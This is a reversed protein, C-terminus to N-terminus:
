DWIADEMVKYCVQTMMEQRCRATNEAQQAYAHESWTYLIETKIVLYLCLSLSVHAWQFITNVFWRRNNKVESAEYQPALSEAKDTVFKTCYSSSFRLVVKVMCKRTISWHLCSVAYTSTMTSGYKALCHGSPSTLTDNPVLLSPLCGQLVQKVVRPPRVKCWPVSRHRPTRHRQAHHHIVDSKWACHGFSLLRVSAVCVSLSNLASLVTYVNCYAHSLLPRGPVYKQIHLLGFILATSFSYMWRDM